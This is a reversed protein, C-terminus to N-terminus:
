EYSYVWLLVPELSTSRAKARRQTSRYEGLLCLPPLTLALLSSQTNTSLRSPCPSPLSSAASISCEGSCHIGTYTLYIPVEIIQSPDPAKGATIVYSTCMGAQRQIWIM